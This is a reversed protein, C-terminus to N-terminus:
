HNKLFKKYAIMHCDLIEPPAVLRFEKFKNIGYLKDVPFVNMETDPKTDAFHEFSHIYRINPHTLAQLIMSCGGVVCVSAIDSRLECMLIAADFSPVVVVTGGISSYMKITRSVIMTVVGDLPRRGIADWTKRGIVVANMTEDRVSLNTLTIKRFQDYCQTTDHCRQWWPCPTSRMIGTPMEYAAVIDLPKLTKFHSHSTKPM